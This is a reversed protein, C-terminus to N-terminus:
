VVGRKLFDYEKEGILRIADEKPLYDVFKCSTNKKKAEREWYYLNALARAKHMDCIFTARKNPTGFKAYNYGSCWACGRAVPCRICEETSQSTRTISQLFALKEKDEATEYLGKDISGVIFPEMGKPLSSEMYRLCPFFDGKYDVAVMASTGGCWNRDDEESDDMPTFNKENYLSVNVKDEIGNDLIYDSVLKMQDYLVKADKPAWGEEFVCNANIHRFGLEIMNVIAPYLKDINEPCLTIKTTDNGFRRLQDLAADIAIKYSREGTPFLRCSDHLEEYGDVTVSVSLLDGFRNIMEQVKSNRYAVGNTSFSYRHFLLWPSDEEMLRLEFYEILQTIVDINLFPEGGILDIIIGSNKDYSLVNDPLKAQELIYDITRKATEFTMYDKSKNIEYCYSCCLSCDNTVQFTFTKVTKRKGDSGIQPFLEEITASYDRKQPLM